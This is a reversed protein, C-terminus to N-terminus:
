DHPTAGESFQRGFVRRLQGKVEILTGGPFAQDFRERVTQVAGGVPMSIVTGAIPASGVVALASAAIALTGITVPLLTRRANM